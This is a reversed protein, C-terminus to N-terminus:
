SGGQSGNEDDTGVRVLLSKYPVESKVAAEIRKMELSILHKMEGDYIKAAM